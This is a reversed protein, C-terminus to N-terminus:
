LLQLLLLLLHSHTSKPHKYFQHHRRAPLIFAELGYSCLAAGVMRVQTLFLFLALAVRFCDGSASCLCSNLPVRCLAQDHALIRTQADCLAHGFPMRM